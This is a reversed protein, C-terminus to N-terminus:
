AAGQAEGGVVRRWFSSSFRPDIYRAFDQWNPFFQQFSERSMRADKAPYVAGGAQRVIADLRELLELTRPGRFPFDLTLTIGPRPFSLMGPSSADGFLKLVALFSAHGFRATARLIENIADERDRPVVCQHQLFGDRGYIRNWDLVADLPFFFPDYHVTKRVSRRWQARYYAANFARMPWRSLAARPLDFPVRLRPMHRATSGAPAHAAHDGRIFIGRGLKNGAALCDVWAVTYEWERDSADALEFFEDLGGFRIREVAILPGPIPRLRIEAWLILGTLGLGGITARYLDANLTPSCVLRTGDSRLLEFQQVYRSLTGARHHNKGHVDHAIAGGVSVFKTGPTVPLFWARPVVLELIAALTVGAECRLIGATEDFSIFRDLLSTDLLVGQENLCSDGYSRGQGFPLVPQPWADLPPPESRWVVRAM